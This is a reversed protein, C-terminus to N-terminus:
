TTMKTDAVAANALVVVSQLAMKLPDSLGSTRRDFIIDISVIQESLIDGVAEM